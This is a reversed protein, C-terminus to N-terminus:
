KVFIGKESKCMITRTFLEGLTKQIKVASLFVQTVWLIGILKVCVKSQRVLKCLDRMKESM